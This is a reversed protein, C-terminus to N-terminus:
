INYKKRFQDVFSDVRMDFKIRAQRLAKADDKNQEELMERIAARTESPEELLLNARIKLATKDDGETEQLLKETFRSFDEESQISLAGSLLLATEMIAKRATLNVLDSKLSEEFAAGEASSLEKEIAIQRAIEEKLEEEEFVITEKFISYYDIPQNEIVINEQTM